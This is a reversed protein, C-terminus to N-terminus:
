KGLLSLESLYRTFGLANQCSYRRLRQTESYRNICIACRFDANSQSERLRIETFEEPSTIGLLEECMRNATRHFKSLSKLSFANPEKQKFVLRM